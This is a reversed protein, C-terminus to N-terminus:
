GIDKGRGALAVKSCLDFLANSSVAWVKYVLFINDLKTSLCPLRIILSPDAM